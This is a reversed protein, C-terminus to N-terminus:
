RLAGAPAWGVGGRGAAVGVGPSRGAGGHGGGEGVGRCVARAAALHVVERCGDRFYDVGRGGDAVALALGAACSNEFNLLLGSLILWATGAAGARWSGGRAETRPSGRRSSYGM